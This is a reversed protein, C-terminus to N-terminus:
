TAKGMAFWYVGPSSTTYHSVIVSTTTRDNIDFTDTVTLGGTDAASSAPTLMLAYYNNHAWARPFNITLTSSTGAVYGWQILVDGVLEWGTTAHSYAGPGVHTLTNSSYGVGSSNLSITGSPNTPVSGVAVYHINWFQPEPRVTTRMTGDQNTGGLNPADLYSVVDVGGTDHTTLSANATYNMEQTTVCCYLQTYTNAYITNYAYITGTGSGMGVDGTTSASIVMSTGTVASSPISVEWGGTTARSTYPRGQVTGDPFTIGAASISTAM